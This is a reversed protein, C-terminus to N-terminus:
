NWQRIEGKGIFDPNSWDNRPYKKIILNKIFEATYKKKRTAYNNKSIQDSIQAVKIVDELSTGHSNKCLIDLAAIVLKVQKEKFHVFPSLFQLITKVRTLGEIKLENM